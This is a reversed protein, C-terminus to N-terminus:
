KKLAFLACIGSIVLSTGVITWCLAWHSRILVQTTIPQKANLYMQTSPDYQNQPVLSITAAGITGVVLFGIALNRAIEKRRMMNMEEAM